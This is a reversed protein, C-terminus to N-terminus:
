RGAQYNRRTLLMRIQGYIYNDQLKDLVAEIEKQQETSLLKGIELRGNEIFFCLHTEITSEVLGRKGAIEAITMGDQFMQLSIDRTGSPATNKIKGEGASSAKPKPLKVATVGHERRYEAVMATLADGYKAMTKPGVGPIKELEAKSDSLHVVIQILMSQHMIQFHKVGQEADQRDRWERLTQYLRPHAIDSETYAATQTKNVKLPKFDLEAKSIARLYDAPSFSKRCCCIGARKVAIGQRLNNLVLNTKKRLEANNRIGIFEAM